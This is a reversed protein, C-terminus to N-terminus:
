RTRGLGRAIFGIGILILLVAVLTTWPLPLGWVVGLGVLILFIGVLVPIARSRGHAPAPSTTGPPQAPAAPPVLASGVFGLGLGILVGPGPQSLLMGAGLGILAGAPILFRGRHRRRGERREERWAKREDVPSKEPSPKEEEPM